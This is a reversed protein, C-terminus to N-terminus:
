TIFGCLLLLIIKLNLTKPDSDRNSVEGTRFVRGYELGVPSSGGPSYAVPTHVECSLKM